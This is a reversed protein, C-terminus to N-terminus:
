YENQNKALDLIKEVTKEDQVSFEELASRIANKVQKEKIKSGKWADLKNQVINENVKLALKENNDLNDYLARKAFTNITKPYLDSVSVSKIKKVFEVIKKLYNAYQIANEKRERILEDLLISMKEFYKPNTPKEEIILRRVNNEISEAVANKNERINKPFSDIADVGKNIILDIITLNEFASVTKSEEADIYSDILHRMAPEYAKLDIYDGSALKIEARANEFDRINSKIKDVEEQTYGAEYMESALNTYARLLKSTQKYLSLRKQESEALEQPNETNGCFYEIFALTDKPPKVPECLIKIGELASDLDEKGTQLRDKLLGKVDDKDFGDFAGSTYDKIAKSLSNFLDKYDVIYGYDKDEGDLRNVRCIAQFLGHDQMSKDIYLYTAPPADFGTLLKDVVILLKMQGPEKIFKEKIVDEFGETKIEPYLKEYYQTMKQYIEYKQLNDTEDDEGTSEGKIESVDPSYSTIIACKKLGNNQFLEYYECAQYISGAVLLANGRDSKLRGKTEMDLMIDAVIRSLRPQSSLVKQMTGWKRKLEAKAYETLGKTKVEFWQDIKDQSTIRQDVERAEYQLDLVINDSVAEDYKYTHIYRGFVELSRKKDTRLLPTGTFGIFIANPIIEKMAKHMKGSQTRHCEDVFVYLDGKAKFNEPLNTKIDHLYDEIDNEANRGFKHILSCILWPLTNNLQEILDKGSTTRYIKENVGLFFKEIQGDLEDRDTIILVRSDDINERIWKALWIMIHSKGSGQTHWIIGGERRKLCDQAAKVGFYQNHRCIKKTGSDFVIFDHIIELLREKSYLSFLDNDLKNKIKSDEKWKLYYKEPTETTAYRLGETDNGAMVLQVTTFFQRIFIEKQNDLNQRIGESVSITSRKLELIAVAIGNVYLVIDPRKNHQGRVTVEEAIYFDNNKQNKWDILWVTQKTEGVEEKVQIGYRLLSYVEKNIDYLGKSQNLAVQQLEFLAKKILIESYGQKKLFRILLDEEINSNDRDEWNGLYSYDMKEKFLRVIRDQTKQEAQGVTLEEM